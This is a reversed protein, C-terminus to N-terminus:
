SKTLRVPEPNNSQEITRNNSPEAARSNSQAISSRAVHASSAPSSLSVRRRAPRPRLRLRLLAPSRAALSTRSARGICNSDFFVNPECDVEAPAIRNRYLRSCEACFGGRVPGLPNQAVRRSGARWVSVCVRGAASVFHTVLGFLPTTQSKRLM